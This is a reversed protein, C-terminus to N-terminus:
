SVSLQSLGDNNFAYRLLSVLFLCIGVVNQRLIDGFCIVYFILSCVAEELSYVVPSTVNILILSFTFLIYVSQTGIPIVTLEKDGFRVIDVFGLGLLVSNM